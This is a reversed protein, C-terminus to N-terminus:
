DLERVENVFRVRPELGLWDALLRLDRACIETYLARRTELVALELRGKRCTLGTDSLAEPSTGTLRRCFRAALGWALAERLQAESALRLLGPPLATRGANGMAAAAIMARGAADIGIWRKRLAWNTAEELRLNPEVQMSAMALTIAALRLEEQGNGHMLRADATWGAVMVAIAPECGFREGFAAVGALLPHQEQLPRPCQGFLVGERLGWSSFVVRDPGIERLLVSLLAATDPMAALRSPSVGPLEQPVQGRALSRLSRALEEPPLTFGHPDDLPWDLRRMAHRALARHAGGVLYLAEGGAGQWQSAALAKRIRRSFKAPGAARLLPLRLTGLPLSAGHECQMGNVHILEMSGGGLDAVVGRAGPFAGIVGMASTLAEEEGSLLRPSLGLAKVQDLFWGGNGADRVAATAVVDVERVQKLRLLAAFRGLASLAGGMSKESMVGDTPVAKGLRATAKENYLVEPARAPGGYIVLRVTNSGIDIVARQGERGPVHGSM